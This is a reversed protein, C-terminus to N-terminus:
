GMAGEPIRAAPIDAAQGGPNGSAGALEDMRGPLDGPAHGNQKAEADLELSKLALEIHNTLHENRHKLVGLMVNMMAVQEGMPESQAQAAFLDAQAMLKIINARNLKQEEQMSIVFEMQAAKLKNNEIQLTGEQKLKELTIKESEGPPMAKVGPYIVEINDVQLANLFRKEVEDPNYGATLKSREAITAAQTMRMQESTINPDAVPVIQSPDGLFDERMIKGGQGFSKEKPLYLANLIFLKGFEAKMCRWVRKFLATYIKQGQEVMSAQTAAPTNQGPNEGVLADTSGSVRQTYNVLFTLMQFLVADVQRVPLEVLGKRLDDGTSDVRNWQFPSFAYEGGRIKVGRAIFGGSTISMTGADLIMNCLSNVSENLPGLLIGFGLGYIGGDPSPILEYKTYEEVSRIRVVRGRGNREVDAPAEWRAVIRVVAKSNAEITIIYPEAYGDKDFDAFCHQELFNLPTAEDVLPPTMGLRKDSELTGPAVYPQTLSTYWPEETIDRWTGAMCREHVENRYFPIIQTKRPASEVSKAYYNMVLSKAPVVESINHGLSSSFKSKKFVSGLIPLQLLLRDQGEEWAQDEELVQYSMYRGIRDARLTAEGKPDPGPVRCKVVNTGQVLAPYARAHFQMAAITVLPFAVNACDPWPFSKAKQLQMALDMARENRRLWDARSLEDQLYGDWVWGGLITLDEPSFRDTLNAVKPISDDLRLHTDLNLM